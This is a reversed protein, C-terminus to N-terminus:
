LQTCIQMFIGDMFPTGEGWGRETECEDKQKKGATKTIPKRKDNKEEFAFPRNKLKNQIKNKSNSIEFRLGYAHRTALFFVM